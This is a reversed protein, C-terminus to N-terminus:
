SFFLADNLSESAAAMLVMVFVNNLNARPGEVLVDECATVIVIKANATVAVVPAAFGSLAVM